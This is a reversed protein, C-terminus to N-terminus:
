PAECECDCADIRRQCAASAVGLTERIAEYCEPAHPELTVMSPDPDIPRIDNDLLVQDAERDIRAAQLTEVRSLRERLDSVDFGIWVGVIGGVLLAYVARMIAPGGSVIRRESM